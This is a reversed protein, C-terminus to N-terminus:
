RAWGEEEPRSNPNDGWLGLAGFAKEESAKVKEIM